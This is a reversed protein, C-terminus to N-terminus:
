METEMEVFLARRPWWEEEKNGGFRSKPGRSQKPANPTKGDLEGCEEFDAANRFAM